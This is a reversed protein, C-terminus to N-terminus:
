LHWLFYNDIGPKHQPSRIHANESVNHRHKHKHIDSKSSIDKITQRETKLPLIVNTPSCSFVYPLCGVLAIIM